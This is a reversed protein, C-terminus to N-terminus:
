GAGKLSSISPWLVAETKIGVTFNLWEFEPTSKGTDKQAGMSFNELATHKLKNKLSPRLNFQLAMLQLAVHTFTNLITRGKAEPKSSALLSLSALHKLLNM